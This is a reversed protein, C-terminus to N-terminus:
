FKQKETHIFLLITPVCRDQSRTNWNLLSLQNATGKILNQGAANVAVRFGSSKCRSQDAGKAAVGSLHFRM